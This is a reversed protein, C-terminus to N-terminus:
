FQLIISVVLVCAPLRLRKEQQPAVNNKKIQGILAQIRRQLGRADSGQVQLVAATYVLIAIHLCLLLFPNVDACACSPLSLSEYGCVLHLSQNMHCLAYVSEGHM